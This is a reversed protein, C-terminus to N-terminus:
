YKKWVKIKGTFTTCTIQFNTIVNAYNQQGIYKAINGSTYYGAEASMQKTSPTIRLKMNDGSQFSLLGTARSATVGTNDFWTNQSQYNAGANDNNFTFGMSTGSIKGMMSIEVEDCDSVDVNLSVSQASYSNNTVLEIPRINAKLLQQTVLRYVKISGTYTKGSTSVFVLSTVSTSTNNWRFTSDYFYAARNGSQYQGADCNCRARVNGKVLSLNMRSYYNAYPTTGSSYLNGLSMGGGTGDVVYTQTNAAFTTSTPFYFNEYTYNASNDGNILVSIGADASTAQINSVILMESYNDGDVTVTTNTLTQNTLIIEKVLEYTALSTTKIDQWKYVTITGTFSVSNGNINLTNM